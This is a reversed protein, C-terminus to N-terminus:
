RKCHERNGEGASKQMELYIAMFCKCLKPIDASREATIAKGTEAWRGSM